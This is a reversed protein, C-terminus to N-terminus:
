TSAATTNSKTWAAQTLDESYTLFNQRKSGIYYNNTSDHLLTETTLDPSFIGYQSLDSGQWNNVKFKNDLFNLDMVIDSDQEGQSAFKADKLTRYLAKHM